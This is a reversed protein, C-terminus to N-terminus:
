ELGVAKKVKDAADSVNGLAMDKAIAAAGLIVLGVVAIKETPLDKAKDLLEGFGDSITDFISM